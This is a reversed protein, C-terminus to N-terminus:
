ENQRTMLLPLGMENLVMNIEGLLSAGAKKYSQSNVFWKVVVDCPISQSLCYGCKHLLIDIEDVQLELAIAIALLAQKTPMMTRYYRFMRESILASDYLDKLKGRYNLYLYETLGNEEWFLSLGATNALAEAQTESLGFLVEANRIVKYISKRAQTSYPHAAWYSM